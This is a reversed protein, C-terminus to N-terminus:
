EDCWEQRRAWWRLVVLKGEHGAEFVESDDHVVSRPIWQDPDYPEPLEVRLAKDTAHVATAGEIAFGGDDDAEDTRTM